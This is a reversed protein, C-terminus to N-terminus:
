RCRRPGEPRAAARGALQGSGARPSRRVGTGPDRQRLPGEAPGPTDLAILRGHDIVAIRDCLQDSEELYNTTLLVTRGASKMERIYDWIVFRAQVDVGHARHQLVVEVSRECALWGNVGPFM